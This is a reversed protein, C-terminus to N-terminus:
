IHSQRGGYKGPPKPADEPLGPTWDSYVPPKPPEPKARPSDHIKVECFYGFPPRELNLNDLM